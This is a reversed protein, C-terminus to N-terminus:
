YAGAHALVVKVTRLLIKLDGGVSWNEVYLLDLRVSEEWSLDSRGGVQWAGTLVPKIYLRRHVHEEYESVERPLPPRPGVLSMDGMLINWLQPLEDLSYKRLVAGVRTVRPDRKLKFLAGSGENQALLAPRDLEATVVMSRFKVMTFPREHAGIREQRFLVPGTSDLRIVLALVAMLPSLLALALASGAVDLARKVRYKAGSFTPSAIRVLPLGASTDFLIRGGQVGDLETALVLEASTAELQWALSRLYEPAGDPHSAVIVVDADIAIAAEPVADAGHFAVIESGPVEALSAVDGTRVIGSVLYSPGPTRGLQQIVFDIDPGSGVIAARPLDRGAVRSAVLSSHWIARGALLLMVGVPITVLLEIRIVLVPILESVIGLLGAMAGSAILVAPYDARGVMVRRSEHTAVVRLAAFWVLALTITMWVRLQTEVARPAVTLAVTVGIGIAVLIAAADLAARAVLRRRTWETAPRHHVAGTAPALSTVSEISRWGHARRNAPVSATV